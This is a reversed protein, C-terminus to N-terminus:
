WPTRPISQFVTAVTFIHYTVNSILHAVPHPSQVLINAQVTVHEGFFVMNEKDLLGDHYQSANNVFKLNFLTPVIEGFVIEKREM